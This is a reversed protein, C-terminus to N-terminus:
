DVGEAGADSEAAGDGAADDAGVGVLGDALAVDAEDGFEAAEVAGDVGAEHFDVGKGFFEDLDVDLDLDDTRREGRGGAGNGGGRGM